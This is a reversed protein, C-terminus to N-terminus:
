AHLKENQSGLSIGAMVIGGSSFPKLAPSYFQSCGTFPFWCLHLPYMRCVLIQLLHMSASQILICVCRGLWACFTFFYYQIKCKKECAGKQHLGGFHSSGSQQRAKYSPVKIDKSSVPITWFM